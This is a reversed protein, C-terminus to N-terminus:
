INQKIFQGNEKLTYSTEGKKDFITLLCQGYKPPSVYIKADNTLHAGNTKSRVALSQQKFNWYLTFLMSTLLSSDWKCYPYPTYFEFDVLYFYHYELCRGMIELVNISWLVTSITLKKVQRINDVICNRLRRIIDHIDVTRKNPVSLLIKEECYIEIKKTSTPYDIYTMVAYVLNLVAESLNCCARWRIKKNSKFLKVTGKSCRYFRYLTQFDLYKCIIAIVDNGLKEM